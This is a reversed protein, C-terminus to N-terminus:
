HLFFLICTRKRKKISFASLPSYHLQGGQANGDPNGGVTSHETQAMTVAKSPSNMMMASGFNLNTFGWRPLM